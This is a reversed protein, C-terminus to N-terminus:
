AEVRHLNALARTLDRVQAAVDLEARNPRAPPNDIPFALKWATRACRGETYRWPMVCGAAATAAKLHATEFDLGWAWVEISEQSLHLFMDLQNLARWLTSGRLDGAYHNRITEIEPLDALTRPRKTDTTKDRIPAALKDAFTAELVRRAIETTLKVSTLSRLEDISAAFSRRELDILHPLSSAFATVSSTHKRRLGEGAAAATSAARGTLYDRFRLAADTQEPTTWAAKDLVCYPHDGWFAGESPFLFVVPFRLREKQELNMRITDSEYTAIAHLYAPGQKVMLDVLDETVVGYKATNQALTRLGQEV